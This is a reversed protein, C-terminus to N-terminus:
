SRKGDNERALKEWAQAMEELIRTHPKQRNRWVAFEQAFRQYDVSPEM